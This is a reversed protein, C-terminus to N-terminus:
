DPWPSLFPLAPLLLPEVTVYHYKWLLTNCFQALFLSGGRKCGGGNRLFSPFTCLSSSKGLGRLLAKKENGEKEMEESCNLSIYIVQHLLSAARDFVNIAVSYRAFSVEKKHM